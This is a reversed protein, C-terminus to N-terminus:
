MNQKNKFFMDYKYNMNIIILNNKSRTIGTYVMEDLGRYNNCDSLVLVVTEAELGKFDKIPCFLKNEEKKLFRQQKDKRIMMREDEIYRIRKVDAVNKAKEALISDDVKTEILIYGDNNKKNYIDYLDKLLNEDDSLVVMDKSITEEIVMVVEELINTNSNKDIYKYVIKGQLPLSTQNSETYNISDNKYENLFCTKYSNALRNIQPTLRHTEKLELWAGAVNPVSPQQYCGNIPDVCTTLNKKYVNQNEDGASFWEGHKVFFLDYICELWRYEFDQTDDTLICNYTMDSGINNKQSYLMEIKKDIISDQQIYKNKSSISEVAKEIFDFITIIEIKEELIKKESEDQAYMSVIDIIYPVMIDNVCLVLVKDRTRRYCEVARGAVVLTKGSGAAGRLKQRKGQESVIFGYQKETLVPIRTKPVNEKISGFVEM